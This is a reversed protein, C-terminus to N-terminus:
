SHKDLSKSFTGFIQPKPPPVRTETVAMIPPQPQSQSTINTPTPSSAQTTVIPPTPGARKMKKLQVIDFIRRRLAMRALEIDKRSETSTKLADLMLRVQRESKLHPCTNVGALHALGCLGCHENGTLKLSCYGTVHTEGCAHCYRTRLTQHEDPTAQGELLSEVPVSKAIKVRHFVDM